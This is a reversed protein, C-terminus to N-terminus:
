KLRKKIEEALEDSTFPRGDNKLVRNKEPISIGTKEKLLRGLQGTVNQEVLIIKKAKEMEKKTKKVYNEFEKENDYIDSDIIIIQTGFKGQIEKIRVLDAKTSYKEAILKAAQEKTPVASAEIAVRVEKRSFLPNVKETIVKLSM